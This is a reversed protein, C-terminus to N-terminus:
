DGCALSVQLPTNASGPMVAACAEITACQCKQAETLWVKLTQMQLILADVAELKEDAVRQWRASPPTQAPFELLLTRLDSIHFGAQRLLQILALRQLVTSDYKRRGNLREPAPLLGESEYYRIASTQIGARQAVEGISLKKIM